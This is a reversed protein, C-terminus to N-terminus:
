GSTISESTIIYSSAVFVSISFNMTDMALDGDGDGSATTRSSASQRGGM